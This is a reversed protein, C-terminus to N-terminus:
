NVVNGWFIRFYNKRLRKLSKKKRWFIQVTEEISELKNEFKEFFLFFFFFFFALYKRM